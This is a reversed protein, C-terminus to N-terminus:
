GETFRERQNPPHMGSGGHWTRGTVIMETVERATASRLFLPGQAVHCGLSSLMELQVMRSVGDAGVPLGLALAMAVLARVVDETGDPHALQTVFSRDLKVMAWPIRALHLMSSWGAGFGDLVIRVGLDHLQELSDLGAADLPVQKHVELCLVDAPAGRVALANSVRDPLDSSSLQLSSINVSVPVDRGSAAAWRAQDTLAEGLVTEFLRDGLGMREVAPLFREADLLGLEPHRWRVMAELSVLRGSTLDVVPQYHCVLHGQEFAALLEQETRAQARADIRLQADAFVARGKGSRKAEYLASDALRFLTEASDGCQAVAAGISVSPQVPRRGDVMMPREMTELIRDTVRRVDEEDVDRLLVVFEDGSIRAVLDDPRAGAGLRAAVEVLLQDGGGHGFRDNVAKLGDLDCVLLGTRPAAGDLGGCALELAEAFRARNPLGTLPDHTAQQRLTGQLQSLERLDGSVAALVLSFSVTIALFIQLLTVPELPGGALVFPGSGHSTFYHAMATVGLSMWATERTGFRLAAWAFLPLVLYPMTVIWTGSWGSFVAVTTVASLGVLLVPEYWPRHTQPRRTGLLLPAVVLVGLADGIFFDAWVETFAHTGALLSALAGATGGVLPGAVVAFGLFLLLPRVPTLEGRPNGFRRLLAAGLLPEATNSLAWGLAAMLPYGWALDGVLEALAVGALVWGWRRTPVLMLAGLTVGAAPWLGAGNSIPDSLWIVLQSLTFYGLGVIALLAQGSADRLRGAVWSRTARREHLATREPAAADWLLGSM